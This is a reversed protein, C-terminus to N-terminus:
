GGNYNMFLIIKMPFGLSLCANAAISIEYGSMDMPEQPEVTMFVRPPEKGM